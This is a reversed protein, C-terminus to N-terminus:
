PIEFTLVEVAKSNLDTYTPGMDDYRRAAIIQLNNTNTRACTRNHRNKHLFTHFINWFHIHAPAHTFWKKPASTKENKLM